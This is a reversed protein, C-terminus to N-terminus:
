LRAARTFCPCGGCDAHRAVLLLLLVRVMSMEFPRFPGCLQRICCDSQEKFKFLQEGRGASPKERGMDPDWASAYYRNAM